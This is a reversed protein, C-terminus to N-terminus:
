WQQVAPRDARLGSRVAPWWPRRARAPPMIPPRARTQARERTAQKTQRAEGGRSAIEVARGHARGHGGPVNDEKKWVLGFLGPSPSFPFSFLPFFFLSIRRGRGREHRATSIALGRRRPLCVFCAVRPAACVRARGVSLAGLVLGAVMPPGGDRDPRSCSRGATWCHYLGGRLPRRDAPRRPACARERVLYFQSFRHRFSALRHRHLGWM